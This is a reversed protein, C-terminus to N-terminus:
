ACWPLRHGTWPRALGEAVLIGGLSRGGRTLTRLDRGYRDRGSGRLEFPGANLLSLLRGTARAGLAAEAPCRSPHTEPADIDAIRVKRGALYFTDGDVVCNLRQSGSCWSFHVAAVPTTPGDPGSWLGFAANAAFAMVLLALIVLPATSPRTWTRTRWDWANPWAAKRARGAFEVVNSQM